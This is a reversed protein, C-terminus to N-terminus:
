KMRGKKNLYDEVLYLCVPVSLAFAPPFWWFLVFFVAFVLICLLITKTM